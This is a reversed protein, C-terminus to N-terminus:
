EIDVRNWGEPIGSDSNLDWQASAPAYFTGSSSAGYLWDNTNYGYLTEETAYCTVSSLNNCWLFMERYCALVLTTAPLVPATTLGSCYEFMGYYCSKALTTAPLAPATTLYECGSFM